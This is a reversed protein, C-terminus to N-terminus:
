LHSSKSRDRRNSKKIYTFLEPRRIRRLMKFRFKLHAEKHMVKGSFIWNVSFNKIFIEGIKKFTEKYIAVEQSDDKQIMLISRFKHLGDIKNKINNVYAVFDQISIEYEECIPVLYPYALHSTAFTCIARGFNKAINKTSRVNEPTFSVGPIRRRKKLSSQDLSVLSTKTQPPSQPSRKAQHFALSANAQAIKKKLFRM